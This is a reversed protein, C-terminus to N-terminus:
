GNSGARWPPMPRRRRRGGDACPLGAGHGVGALRLAPLLGRRGQRGAAERGIQPRHRPRSPGASLGARRVDDRQQGHGSLDRGPRGRREAARHDLRVCEDIARQRLGKPWLPEVRKLLWDLAGFFASWVGAEPAARAQVLRGHVSRCSCSTACARRASQAGAAEEGGAGAAARDGHAGLLSMKSLHIPFWRPLLILEVPVTPVDNWSTQATFRWCSAPSSMPRSRAAARGPDGRARAGHAARRHDDGIMKLAFYAKVTASIDFRAAM